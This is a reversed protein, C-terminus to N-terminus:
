PLVIISISFGLEAPCAALLPLRCSVRSTVIVQGPRVAAFSASTFGGPPASAVPIPTLARGSALPPLWVGSGAGRLYVSLTDGVRVCYTKDDSALTVVLSRGAPGLGHWGPLAAPTAPGGAPVVPTRGARASAHGPSAPTAAASAHAGSGPHSAQVAGCGATVAAVLCATLGVSITKM